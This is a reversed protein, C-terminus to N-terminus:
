NAQLSNSSLGNLSNNNTDACDVSNCSTLTSRDNEFQRNRLERLRKENEFFNVIKQYDFDNKIDWYNNVFM